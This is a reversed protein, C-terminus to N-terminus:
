REPAATARLLARARSYCTLASQRPQLVYCREPAATARLLAGARSYCTVATHWELKLMWAMRTKMGQAM